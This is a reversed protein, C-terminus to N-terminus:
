NIYGHKAPCLSFQPEYHHGLAAFYESIDQIMLPLSFYTAHKKTNLIKNYEM